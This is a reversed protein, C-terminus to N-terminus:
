PCDGACQEDPDCFWDGCVPTCTGCDIECKRCSEGSELDCALDGCIPSGAVCELASGNAFCSPTCTGRCDADACGQFGDADYDRGEFCADDLEANEWRYEFVSRVGGTVDGLISLVGNKSTALAHLSRESPAFDVDSSRWAGDWEWTDALDSGISAGGFLVLRRRAASWAMASSERGLPGGPREIWLQSTPDLVWTDDLIKPEMSGDLGGFAVLEGTARDYALAHRHRGVPMSALPTWTAGDWAWTDALADRGARGGVLLIRGLDPDYAMAHDQRAPPQPGVRPQLDWTRTTTNWVHTADVEDLLSADVGGFLVVQGRGVDYAMRAKRHPITGVQVWVGDELEWTETGAGVMVKGRAEDLVASTDTAIVPLQNVIRDSWGVGNWILAANVLKVSDEGGWVVVRGRPDAVVTHGTRVDDLAVGAVWTDGVLEWLDRVGTANAADIGGIWMLRQRAADWILRSGIQSPPPDVTVLKEWAQTTIDYTWTEAQPGNEGVLVIRGRVPDYTMSHDAVPAPSTVPEILTWTSGDWEWTDGLVVPKNGATRGGFLVSRRHVPDYAIAARSRASPGPGSRSSWIRGDWEWTDDLAVAPPVFGPNVEGGFVVFRDRAVDYTAAAHSRKPPRIAAGERIWGFCPPAPCEVFKGAYLEDFDNGLDVGGFLLIRDRRVDYAASAGRRASPQESFVPRWRPQEIACSGSCGDHPQRNNDDCAEATADADVVGNGCTEDSNCGASCGDGSTQDHDDCVENVDLLGNGCAGSFCAGFHCTGTGGAVLECADLEQLGECAAIDGATVCRFGQTPPVTGETVELCISNAPCIDGNPCVVEGSGLCASILAGILLPRSRAIVSASWMVHCKCGVFARM